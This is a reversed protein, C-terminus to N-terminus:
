MPMTKCDERLKEIAAMITARLKTNSFYITLVGYPAKQTYTGRQLRSRTATKQFQQPQLALEKCWYKIAASVNVDSFIQLGFRLRSKDVHYTADLFYLFARLLGPDTNGLRVALKNAKNGEGWYLGLGLGYLFWDRPSAPASFRFPDGGPNARLYVADAITRKTIQHKALWYNVKSQSCKFKAAIAVVSLGKQEYLRQLEQKSLM